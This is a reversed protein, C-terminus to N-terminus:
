CIPFNNKALDKAGLDLEACDGGHAASRELITPCRNPYKWCCSEADGVFGFRGANLGVDWGWLCRLRLVPETRTFEIFFTGRVGTLM